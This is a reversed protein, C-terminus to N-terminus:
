QPDVAKEEGAAPEVRLEADALRIGLLRREFTKDDAVGRPGARQDVVGLEAEAAVPKEGAGGVEVQEDGVAGGAEFLGGEFGM